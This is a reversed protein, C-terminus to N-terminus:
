ISIKISNLVRGTRPCRSPAVSLHKFEGLGQWKALLQAVDRVAFSKGLRKNQMMGALRSGLRSGLLLGLLGKARQSASPHPQSGRCAFEWNPTTATPKARWRKDLFEAARQAAKGDRKHFWDEILLAQADSETATEGALYCKAREILASVSDVGESVQSPLPAHMRMTPNNLFEMSVAPKGSIRADIASGCNLHVVCACAAIASMIDGEGDVVVNPTGAFFDIYRAGNEFPHPRVQVTHNPLAEALSKIAGLYNPLVNNLADFLREVYQREWGLKCFIRIEDEQSRTYAPNIASFNTNVLVFNKRQYSLAQNWPPHCQDYRPCGTVTLQDSHLGSFEAFAAHLRQGWFCYYDILGTFGNARMSQALNRPSDQGSESLIGGETDLIAVAMGLARYSELLGRNSERAYNAVVLNAALLPVEYGQEYMPVLHAQWGLEACQCALLVLGRLDRKPNDVIIAVQPRLNM